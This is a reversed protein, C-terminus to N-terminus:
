LVRKLTKCFMKLPVTIGSNNFTMTRNLCNDCAFQHLLYYQLQYLNILLCVSKVLNNNNNNLENYRALSTQNVSVLKIMAKNLKREFLVCKSSFYVHVLLM